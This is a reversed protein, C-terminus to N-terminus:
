SIKYKTSTVLTGRKLIVKERFIQLKIFTSSLLPDRATKCGRASCALIRIIETLLGSGPNNATQNTFLIVTCKFYIIEEWLIGIYKSVYCSKTPKHVVM